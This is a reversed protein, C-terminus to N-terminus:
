WSPWLLQEMWNDAFIAYDAFNLFRQLKPEPDTLNAVSPVPGYVTTPTGSDAAVLGSGDDFKYRYVPAPNPDATQDSLSNVDAETLAYAYIRVDDITGQFYGGSKKSRGIWFGQSFNQQLDHAV